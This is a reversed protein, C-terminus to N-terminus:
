CLTQARSHSSAPESLAGYILYLLHNEGASKAIGPLLPDDPLRNPDSAIVIVPLERSWRTTFNLLSREAADDGPLDLDVIMCGCRTPVRGFEEPSSFAEVLFGESALLQSLSRRETAKPAVIAVINESNMGCVM